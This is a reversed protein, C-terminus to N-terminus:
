GRGILYVSDARHPPHGVRLASVSEWVRQSRLGPGGPMIAMYLLQDMMSCDILRLDETFGRRM